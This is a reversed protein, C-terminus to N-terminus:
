RRSRNAIALLRLLSLLSSVLAAVYTMAASSLVARAGDVEDTDLLAESEIARIARKSADLEVPLTVLQFIVALAFLAIGIMMVYENALLIGVLLIPMSLNSGINVMPVIAMRIKILSYGKAYQVAHGAEHAAVGIAAISTAGYVNDSLRIVKEKPSYHDNLNGSIHVVDVDTIGNARLIAQAAMAGTIGKLSSVKSYRSFSTNVKIQAWISFIIGPIIILLTSDFYWGFLM